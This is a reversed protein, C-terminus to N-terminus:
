GELKLLRGGDKQKKGLKLSIVGNEFRAEARDADVEVPLTVSYNFSSRRKSCHYTRSASDEVSEESESKARIAVRDSFVRIEVDKPDVGPADLSVVLDDGEEYIELPVERGVRSYLNGFSRFFDDVEPFLSVSRPRNYRIM